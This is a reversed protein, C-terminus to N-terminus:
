AVFHQFGSFFKWVVFSLILFLLVFFFKSNPAESPFQKVLDGPKLIPSIRFNPDKQQATSTSALTTHYDAIFDILDHGYKRFEEANMSYPTFIDGVFVSIHGLVFLHRSNEMKIVDYKRIVQTMQRSGASTVKKRTCSKDARRVQESIPRTAPSSL